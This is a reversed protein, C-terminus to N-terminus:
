ALRRLRGLAETTDLWVDVEDLRRRVEQSRRLELDFPHLGLRLPRGTRRALKVQLANFAGLAVDRWRTDAEFGILPTAHFRRTELDHYGWQVEVARYGLDALARPSVAGLAWAPPVYFTPVPLGHTEFWTRGRAVLDMVETRSASLHEAQDRSVVTGHLRHYLTRPTRRHVWGHGALEHGRTAWSK